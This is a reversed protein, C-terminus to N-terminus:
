LEFDAIGLEEKEKPTLEPIPSTKLWDMIGEPTLWVIATGDRYATVIRKGDPSFVASNVINTHGKIDALLNGQLDWPLFLKGPVKGVVISLSM